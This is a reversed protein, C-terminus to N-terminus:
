KALWQQVLPALLTVTGAGALAVLTAKLVNGAWAATLFQWVPIRMAGAAVGVIDFAPNPVLALAFVMWAGWRRMLTVVRGMFFQDSLIASGGYGALYGTMEGLAAGSGFALGVLWPNLSSGAGFALALGPMPFIVTASGLLGILFLGAYGLSAFQVLHDRFLVLTVTIALAM